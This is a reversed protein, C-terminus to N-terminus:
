PLAIDGSALAESGRREVLKRAAMVDEPRNFNYNGALLNLWEGDPDTKLRADAAANWPDMTQKRPLGAADRLADVEDVLSRVQSSSAPNALIPRKVKAPDGGSKSPNVAQAQPRVNTEVSEAGPQSSISRNGAAYASSPNVREKGGPDTKENRKEFATVLWTERQGDRHLSLAVIDSGMVVNVRRGASPGRWNVLAGNMIVDPIRSLLKQPTLDGDKTTRQRIIHRVGYADTGWDFTVPGLKPHVIAGPVSVHDKLVRQMATQGRGVEIARVAANAFAENRLAEDFKEPFAM